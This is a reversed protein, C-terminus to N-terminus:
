DAWSINTNYIYVGDFFIINSQKLSNYMPLQQKINSCFSLKGKKNIFTYFEDYKIKYKSDLFMINSYPMVNWEKMDMSYCKLKNDVTKMFPYLKFIYYREVKLEEFILKCYKKSIYDSIIEAKNEADIIYKCTDPTIFVKDRFLEMFKDLLNM